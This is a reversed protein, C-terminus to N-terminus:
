IAHSARATLEADSLSWDIAELAAKQEESLVVGARQIADLPNARMQARFQADATWRDILKAVGETNTM